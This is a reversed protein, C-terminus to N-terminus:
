AAARSPSSRMRRAEIWDFLEYARARAGPASSAVEKLLADRDVGLEVLKDRDDSVIQLRDAQEVAGGLAAALAQAGFCIGLLPVGTRHARGLFDVEQGIWRDACAHVSQESGLSVLADWGSLSPWRDLNPVDIVALQHSRSAAWGQLWGLCSGPGHHLVMIHM